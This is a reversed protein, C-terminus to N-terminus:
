NADKEEIEAEVQDKYEQSMNSLQKLREDPNYLQSLSMKRRLHIYKDGVKSEDGAMAIYSEGEDDGGLIDYIDGGFARKLRRLDDQDTSAITFEDWPERKRSRTTKSFGKIGIRAAMGASGRLKQGGRSGVVGKRDRKKRGGGGGELLQKRLDKKEKKKSKRDKRDKSKRGM